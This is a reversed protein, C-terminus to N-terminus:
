EVYETGIVSLKTANYGESPASYWCFLSLLRELRWNGLLVVYKGTYGQKGRGRHDTRYPVM